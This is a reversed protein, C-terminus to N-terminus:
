PRSPKEGTPLFLNLGHKELYDLRGTIVGPKPYVKFHSAENAALEDGTELYSAKWNSLGDHFYKIARWDDQSPQLNGWAFFGLYLVGWWRWKKLGSVGAFFLFFALAGTTMLTLYRSAQSAEMGLSVRGIATHIVFCLAFTSLMFIVVLARRHLLDQQIMLWGSWASLASLALFPVLGLALAFGSTGSIGHLHALMHSSFILYDLPRECPFQFHDVAPSFRWGHFFLAWGSVLIVWAGLAWGARRKEGAKWAQVAEVGFLILLVGGMFLGFGSFVLHFGLLALLSLRLGTSPLFWCCGAMVILCLPASALSPNAASLYIEFMRLNFFFLGGALWAWLAGVGCLRALYVGGLAALTMWAFVVWADVRSNWGFLPILEGMLVFAIGQRHPGHQLLFFDWWSLNKFLPLYFDWQDWFLMNVAHHDVFWYLRLFLVLFVLAALVGPLRHNM